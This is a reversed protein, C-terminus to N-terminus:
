AQLAYARLGSSKPISVTTPATHVIKIAFYKYSTYTVTSAVPTGLTAAVSPSGGSLTATITGGTYGRGPNTIRIESVAGGSLIAEATAGYGNGTHSISVTPASGYGSGGSSVPISSIRNVDYEYVGNGNLGSISSGKAPIKYSYEAFGETAVLPSGELELQKWPIDTAINGDDDNSMFKGFVAVGTGNPIKNDLYVIMDEAEQGDALVVTKSIYKMTSDGGFRVEENSADNNILNKFAAMAMSAMDIM